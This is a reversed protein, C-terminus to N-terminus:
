FLKIQDPVEIAPPKSAHSPVPFVGATELDDATILPGSCVRCLLGSQLPELDACMALVNVLELLESTYQPTWRESHVYDLPTTRKVRPTRKRYDFWRRVVRMGAVEYTWVEAAVPHIEGAGVLLTQTSADYGIKVPMGEVTDPIAQVVRPRRDEPLRPPSSPRGDAPDAFREGYTHLWLIRRGLHVAEAWMAPDASLPVRIGPTQLDAAFKKTYSPHAVVCATYALVDEPSIATNLWNGLAELLGPAINPITGSADRYLPLVRGGRGNFHDVGPVIAAFTLGPGSEIPHAHQETVYIQRDSRAQWLPRRPRDIVRADYIVYQRDFSRLAVRETRIATSAEDHIPKAAGPTGPLPPPITTTRRSDTQKLLQPKAAPDALILQEWRRRLTTVDPAHVWNRNPTIGTQAWPFLDALAPFQQWESGQAPLMLDQWGDACDVWTGDKIGLTSLTRFKEERLGEVATYHLRAKTEPNPQGKRIFVAICLKHQVERFIRTAPDPRFQEPSLDIIWGEDATKRLYERMGAYGAGTTFSAPTIFAVVGAPHGPHADFAKWTAWRWFYVYLNSLVYELRGRGPARFSDLPPSGSEPSGKEVWGGRGGAHEGYPPNGIVVVIPVDRKIKNAELRSRALPELTSPVHPEEVFPDDLTDAIYFQVEREPVEIEYAAKIARHIRLETVAYPSAQAEFGILRGFLARVQAGVAGEGEERNITAAVTNIIGQLFKGTGMAPDIIRVCNEAMGREIHMRDKLVEDTFRVMFAVIEEPTYYSGTRRQLDPDYEEIFREYLHQHVDSKGKSLQEWDMVGVVSLLTQLAVSRQEVSRETLVALAKGMLSQKKGLQRAIEALEMERFNIGFVRALLLAFTVTQAYADAFDRDPLEPVLYERWDEALGTFIKDTELGAHERQLTDRVEDRLLRCLNAVAKVFQGIPRKQEPEARLFEAIVREFEGDAPRLRSGSRRLDGDLRAVPGSLVGFHFVAWHEGDSYLVNPLLKLQEWQRREHTTPATWVTPVKRGWAKLEAYGVQAGAAKIM